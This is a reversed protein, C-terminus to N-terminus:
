LVSRENWGQVFLRSFLLLIGTSVAGEAACPLPSFEVPKQFACPGRPTCAAETVQPGNVGAPSLLAEGCVLEAPSKRCSGSSLLMQQLVLLGLTAALFTLPGQSLGLDLEPNPACPAHRSRSM